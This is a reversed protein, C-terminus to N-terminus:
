RSRLVGVPNFRSRPLGPGWSLRRVPEPPKDPQHSHTKKVPTSEIDLSRKMSLRRVSDEVLFPDHIGPTFLPNEGFGVRVITRAQQAWGDVPEKRPDSRDSAVGAIAMEDFKKDELEEIKGTTVSKADLRKNLVEGFGKGFTSAAVKEYITLNNRGPHSILM